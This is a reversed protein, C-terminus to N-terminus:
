PRFVGKIDDRGVSAGSALSLKVGDSGQTIGTVVSTALTSASVADKGSSATVRMTYTGAALARGAADTGSWEFSLTGAPQNKFDVAAVTSGGADLLEVKVQDAASELHVGARSTGTQGATRTITMSESLVTQGILNASDVARSNSNAEAFKSMTSNLQEIGQGTSIQALQSTVQANDMPNMPDQNKMQAVLLKLFRDQNDAASSSSAGSAASSGNLMAQLATQNSTSQTSDTVTAM